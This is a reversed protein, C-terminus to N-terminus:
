RPLIQECQDCLILLESPSSRGMEWHFGPSIKVLNKLSRDIDAAPTPANWVAFGSQGCNQCKIALVSTLGGSM